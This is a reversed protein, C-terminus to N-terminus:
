GRFMFCCVRCVEMPTKHLVVQRLAKAKEGNWIEWFPQQRINGLSYDPCIRVDGDPLVNVEFWAAYCPHHFKKPIGEPHLYWDQVERESMRPFFDLFVGNRQFANVKRVELLLEDVNLGEPSYTAASWVATDRQLIDTRATYTQLQIQPMFMLHFFYMQQFEVQEEKLANLTDMLRNYNFETVTFTINVFPKNSRREKKASSVARLGEMSSDFAGEVMRNRDHADRPGDISVNIFDVTEAVERAYKKLHTGNTQLCVTLNKQRAYSAFPYWEARLLPEGGTLVVVPKAREVEDVFAKLESLSLMNRLWRSQDRDLMEDNQIIPCMGCDLDCLPTFLFDVERLEHSQDGWLAPMYRDLYKAKVVKFVFDPSYKLFTVAKQLQQIM